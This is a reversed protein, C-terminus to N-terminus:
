RYDTRVYETKSYLPDTCNWISGLQLTHKIVGSTDVYVCTLNLNMTTEDVHSIVLKQSLTNPCVGSGSTKTPQKTEEYGEGMKEVFKDGIMWYLMSNYKHTHVVCTLKVKEKTRLIPSYIQM